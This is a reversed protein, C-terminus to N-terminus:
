SRLFVLVLMIKLLPTGWTNMPPWCPYGRPSIYAFLCLKAGRMPIAFFKGLAAEHQVRSVSDEERRHVLVCPAVLAVVDGIYKRFRLLRVIERRGGRQKGVSEIETRRHQTVARQRRGGHAERSEIWM